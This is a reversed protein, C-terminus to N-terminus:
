WCESPTKIGLSNVTLTGCSDSAQGGQPVTSIIYCTSINGCSGAAVTMKYYKDSTDVNNAASYGLKTMDITYSKNDLYFQELRSAADMLGAKADSRKGKRVSDNYAPLAITALIAVVAVVIMLEILTFGRSRKQM